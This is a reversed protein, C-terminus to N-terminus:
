APRTARASYGLRSSILDAVERVGTVASALNPRLDRTFGTVGVSGAPHGEADFFPAAVCGIDAQEEEMEVAYGAERVRELQELFPAPGAPLAGPGEGTQLKALLPRLEDDDLYATIAKGLATLNFPAVKGPYTDFQIFGPASAKAVYVVSAGNLVGIHVPMELAEALERLEAQAITAPDVTRVLQVALGYLGMTARWFHSRGVVRRTAYGRQELTYVIAACTALPIGTSKSLATLTVGDDAAVLAELVTLARAVPQSAAREDTMDVPYPLQPM